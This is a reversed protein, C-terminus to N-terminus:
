TEGLVQLEAFAAEHADECRYIGADNKTVSRLHLNGNDDVEANPRSESTPRDSTIYNMSFSIKTRLGVQQWEVKHKDSRCVLTVNSGQKVATHKPKSTL